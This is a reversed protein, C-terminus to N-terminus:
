AYQERNRLCNSNEGFDIFVNRGSKTPLRPSLAPSDSWLQLGDALLPELVALSARERAAVDGVVVFEDDGEGFGDAEHGFDVAGDVVVAAPWRRETVPARGILNGKGLAAPKHPM